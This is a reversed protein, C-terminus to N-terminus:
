HYMCDSYMVTIGNVPVFNKGGQPYFIKNLKTVAINLMSNITLM